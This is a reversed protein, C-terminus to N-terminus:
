VNGFGPSMLICSTIEEKFSDYNLLLDNVPLLLKNACTNAQLKRSTDLHNFAIVPRPQYGVAPISPCATVFQLIDGLSFVVETSSETSFDFVQGKIAGIEIDEMLTTFHFAIAEEQQRKNSGEPSFQVEFLEDVIEATLRSEECVQFLVRAKEPVQRIVELLGYLKLGNIFQEMHPLSYLLTYHLCIYRILSAKDEITVIPKTYGAKFRMSCNFSALQKFDEPDSTRQLEELKQRVKANPVDEVSVAVKEVCGHLIYDVVPSAFFSPSAAGQIISMACLRGYKLYDQQELAIVNNSFCKSNSEGAFMSNSDNMHKHLLSFLERKPGGTDVAPEGVYQVRIGQELDEESCKNLKVKVDEWVNSRRVKIRLSSDTRLKQNRQQILLDCLQLNDATSNIEDEVSHQATEDERPNNNYTFDPDNTIDNCFEFSAYIEQTTTSSPAQDSIILNVAAELNNDTALLANRAHSPSCQPFMETISEYLSNINEDLTNSVTSLTSGHNLITTGELTTSGPNTSVNLSASLNHPTATVASCAGSQETTVNLATNVPNSVTLSASLNDATTVTSSTRRIQKRNCTLDVIETDSNVAEIDGEDSEVWLDGLGNITHEDYDHSPCIYFNIRQYAKGYENKYKYLVFSEDSERLKDVLSGDPYLLVYKINDKILNKSHAKHKALGTALLEDKTSVKPVKVSLNASRQPKLQNGDYFM